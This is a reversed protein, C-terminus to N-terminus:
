YLEFDTEQLVPRSRLEGHMIGHIYCEGLHVYRNQQKSRERLLFPVASGHFLAITDGNKATGPVIGVYGAKTVCAKANTFREAFEQATYLFPWMSKRLEQPRFLFQKIRYMASMEKVETEWDTLKEGLQLYEVFAEYSTRFNVEEWTGSIPKDADGIPIKWVLDELKDKSPYSKLSKVAQFIEKLYLTRDSSVQGVREITDLVYGRATLVDQGPMLVIDSKLRTAASFGRIRSPWTAITHRQVNTVWDPIWSPFRPSTYGARYLLNLADGRKVFTRGYRRVIVDLPSVYDPDLDPDDADRALGLFAFLKDRQLTARTHQFSDFLALLRRQGGKEHYSQKLEGLSLIAEAQQAIPKMIAATSRKAKESCIKAANYIESWQAEQKGCLMTVKRALVLEQVIWVRRFWPRGFFRNISDWDEESAFASSPPQDPRAGIERLCKIAQDSNEAEEGLWVCVQEASKFIEPMLRIQHSKEENNGQDICIADAWILVSTNERRLRQLGFYLPATLGINGQRTKLIFPKLDQGWVYSMAQFKENISDLSVKRLVGQLDEDDHGKFLELLRITRDNGLPLPQYIYSEEDIVRSPNGREKKNRWAFTLTKFLGCLPGRNQQTPYKQAAGGFDRSVLLPKPNKIRAVYCHKEPRIVLQGSAYTRWPDVFWSACAGHGDNSVLVLIFVQPILLDPANCTRIREFNEHSLFFPMDHTGQTAHAQIYFVPTRRRWKSAEKFSCKILFKTMTPVDKLTFTTTADIDDKLSPYYARTRLHSTWHINANYSDGLYKKLLQSVFLESLFEADIDNGIEPNSAVFITSAGSQSIRARAPLTRGGSAKDSFNERPLDRPRSVFVVNPLGVIRPRNYMKPPGSNTLEKIDSIPEVVELDKNAAASSIEPIDGLWIYGPRPLPPEIPPPRYPQQRADVKSSSSVPRGPVNEGTSLFDPPSESVAISAETKLSQLRINNTGIRVGIGIKVGTDILRYANPPTGPEEIEKGKSSNTTQSTEPISSIDLHESEVDSEQLEDWADGLSVTEMDDADNRRLEDSSLGGDRAPKAEDSSRVRQLPKMIGNRALLNSIYLHDSNSLVYYILIAQRDIGCITALQEAVEVPINSDSGSKLYVEIKKNNSSPLVVGKLGDDTRSSQIESNASHADISKIAWRVLVQDAVFVKINELASRLEVRRPNHKSLMYSIFKSKERFATTHGVHLQVNGETKLTSVARKSLLRSGLKLATILPMIELVDEVTFALLYVVGHFSQQLHPRDAIYWEIDATGSCLNEFGAETDGEKVPFVKMSILSDLRHLEMAEYKKSCLTKNIEKFIQTIWSIPTSVTIQEVESVLVELNARTHRLINKFLQANNPYLKKLVHFKQLHEMGNWVCESEKVWSSSIGAASSPIYISNKEFQKKVSELNDKCIRSQINDYLWAVFEKPVESGRVKDLTSLYFDIGDHVTVGFRKLFEWRTSRPEPIDLIPQLHEIEPGWIDPLLPVTLTDRLPRPKSNLCSVRASSLERILSPSPDQLFYKKYTKWNDRLLVLLERSLQANAMREPDASIIQVSKSIDGPRPIHWMELEKHLWMFWSGREDPTVAYLYDEHLFYVGQSNKDIYKSASHPWPADLYVEQAYRPPGVKTAVWFSGLKASSEWKTRFLYVAHSILIHRPVQSLDNEKHTAIVRRQADYLGFTEVGLSKLFSTWRSDKDVGPRLQSISIGEPLTHEENPFFVQGASMSVWRGDNLPILPIEKLAKRFYSYPLLPELVGALQSHEQDSYGMTFDGSTYFERVDDILDSNSLEKVGLNKIYKSDSVDYKRSLNRSRTKPTSILPNNSDDRFSAPVYRASQPTIWGNDESELVPSQRLKEMSLDSFVNSFALPIPLYRPWKYRLTSDNLLHVAKIFADEVRDVIAKNWNSPTAIDQRNATLLFDAHLLFKFGYDRVPLFAYVQQSEIVPEDHDITTPFALEITSDTQNMRKPELPLGSIDHRIVYYSLTQDDHQLRTSRRSKDKSLEDHRVLSTRYDEGGEADIRINIQRIRRLFMLCKPTLSKMERTLDKQDDENPVQLLISTFNDRRPVPFDVWTPTIMGLKRNKDFQFSYHQSHIWVVNAMRFVSKFGIGKEGIKSETTQKTSKKIRCIAEVDKKTFGDENYDIRLRNNWYTIDIVPDKHESSCNDYSCDDANQILELLFHTSQQYLEASLIDLAAELDDVNCNEDGSKNDFGKKKRIEAIHAQAEESTEPREM